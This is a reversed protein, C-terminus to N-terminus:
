RQGYGPAAPRLRFTRPRLRFSCEDPAVAPPFVSLVSERGPPSKHRARGIHATRDPGTPLLERGTHGRLWRYETTEPITPHRLWRKECCRRRIGADPWPVTSRRGRRVFLTNWGPRRGRGYLM